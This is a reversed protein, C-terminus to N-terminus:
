YEQLRLSVGDSAIAMLYDISNLKIRVKDIVM